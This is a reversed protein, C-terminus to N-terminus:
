YSWAMTSLALAAYLFPLNAIAVQAASILWVDNNWLFLFHNNPSTILKTQTFSKLTSNWTKM